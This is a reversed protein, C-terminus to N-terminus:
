LLNVAVAPKKRVEKDGVTETVRAPLNNRNTNPPTPKLSTSITLVPIPRPLVWFSQGRPSSSRVM